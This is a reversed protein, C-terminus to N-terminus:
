PSIIRTTGDPNQDLTHDSAAKQGALKLCVCRSAKWIRCLSINGWGALREELVPSM